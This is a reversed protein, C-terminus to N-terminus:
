PEAAPSQLATDPVVKPLDAAAVASASYVPARAPDLDIRWINSAGRSTEFIFPKDFRRPRRVSEFEYGDWDAGSVRYLNYTGDPVRPLTTDEGARVYVALVTLGKSALIIVTDEAPHAGLVLTGVGTLDERGSIVGTAPRFFSVPLAALPVDLALQDPRAPVWGKVGNDLQALVWYQGRARGMVKITTGQRAFALTVSDGPLRRVALQTAKV